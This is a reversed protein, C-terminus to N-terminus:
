IVVFKARTKRDREVLVIGHAHRLQDGSMPALKFGGEAFQSHGGEFYLRESPGTVRCGSPEQKFGVPLRKGLLGHRGEFCVDRRGLAGIRDDLLYPKIFRRLGRVRQTGKDTSQGVLAVITGDRTVGFFKVFRRSIRAINRHRRLRECLGTVAAIENTHNFSVREELVVIGFDLTMIGPLKKVETTQTLRGLNCIRDALLRWRLAIKVQLDCERDFGTLPLLQRLRKSRKQLAGVLQVARGKHPRRMERLSRAM